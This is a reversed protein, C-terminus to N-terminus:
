SETDTERCVLYINMNVDTTGNHVIWEGLHSFYQYNNFEPFLTYYGDILILNDEEIWGEIYPEYPSRGRYFGNLDFVATKSEDAVMEEFYDSLDDTEVSTIIKDSFNNYLVVSILVLYLILDKNELESAIPMNTLLFYTAPLFALMQIIKNDWAYNFYAIGYVIFLYGIMM